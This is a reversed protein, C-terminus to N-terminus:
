RRKGFSTIRWGHKTPHLTLRMPRRGPARIVAGGSLERGSEEDVLVTVDSMVVDGAFPTFAAVATECTKAGLTSRQSDLLVRVAERALVACSAGYDREYAGRYFLFVTALEDADGADGIPSGGDIHQKITDTTSDLTSVDLRGPGAASPSTAAPTQSAAPAVVAVSFALLCIILIRRM